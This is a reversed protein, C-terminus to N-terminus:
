EPDTEVKTEADDAASILVRLTSENSSIFDIIANMRAATIPGIPESSDKMPTKYCLKHAIDLLKRDAKKRERTISDLASKLEETIAKEAQVHMEVLENYNVDPNPDDIYCLLYAPTTELVTALAKIKDQPINSIKDHEYKYITQRITGIAAAVEDMTLGAAKRLNRIRKGTSM